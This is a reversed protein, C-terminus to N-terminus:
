AGAEPSLGDRAMCAVAARTALHSVFRDLRSRHRPFTNPETM